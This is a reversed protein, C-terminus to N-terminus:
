HCVFVPVPPDALVQRTAGGWIMEVLRPRGYAGMVLWTADHAAAAALITEGVSGSRPVEVIECGIGHRSLYEAGETHPLVVADPQKEEQVSVLHVHAAKALLPVAARLARAAEPSGDWAAVAPGACDFRRATAPVVLIPTRSRFIVDGLLASPGKARLGDCSGLVVLDSLGCRRLLRESAFGDEQVYDWVVDEGRLRQEMRERLEDAAKRVQPMMQVAMAGYLDGPVGYEYPVAQLCTLHGGFERAIDLAVQLRAELCEDNDVHLLISRM